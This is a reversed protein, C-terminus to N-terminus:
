ASKGGSAAPTREDSSLGAARRDAPLSTSCPMGVVVHSFTIIMVECLPSEPAAYLVEPGFGAPTKPDFSNTIM